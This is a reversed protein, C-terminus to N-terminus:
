DRLFLGKASTSVHQVADVASRVGDPLDPGPPYRLRWSSPRFDSPLLDLPLPLFQELSSLAESSGRMGAARAQCSRQLDQVSSNLALLQNRLPEVDSSPEVHSRPEKPVEFAQELRDQQISDPPMSSGKAVMREELCRKTEDLM